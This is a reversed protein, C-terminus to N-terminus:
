LIVAAISGCNEGINRWPMPCTNQLLSPSIESYTIVVFIFLLNTM